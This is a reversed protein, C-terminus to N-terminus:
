QEGRVKKLAVQAAESIVKQPDRTAETLRTVVAGAQDGLGDAAGLNGLAEIAAIRVELVNDDMCTLVSIIAPKREDGLEKGMRSIAHLSRSRVHQDDDKLAARLSSLAPRSDAGIQDLADACARRLTLDADRATLVAGLTPAADAADKGLDSLADACAKRVEPHNRADGLIEKLAPVAPLADPSGIRGLALACHVRTLREQKDDRLVAQLDALADRADKGLKRLANAAATRTGAHRDKLAVALVGVAGRAAEKMDGLAKASAERVHESKDTRLAAALADRIADLRIDDDPRAKSAIDGLALAAGSRIKEESNERLAGILAPVVKRSKRPGILRIALLGARRENVSKGNQLLDLWESLKKGRYAPDDEEARAPANVALLALLLPLLLWYMRSM